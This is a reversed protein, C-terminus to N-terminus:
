AAFVDSISRDSASLLTLLLTLAHLADHAPFAEGLGQIATEVCEASAAVGTENVIQLTEGDGDIWVGGHARHELVQRSLLEGSGTEVPSPLFVMQCGTDAVLQHLLRAAPQSRCDVVFRLPRLAHFFPSLRTLYQDDITVHKLAGFRRSARAIPSKPGASIRELGAGMELRRGDGSWFRIGVTTIRSAANGVYLGGAANAEQMAFTIQPACVAGVDLVDRGAWRLGECAAAVLESAPGRGDYGLVVAAACDFEALCGAFAAAWSRVKRPTIQTHLVGAIADLRTVVSKSVRRDVEALKRVQRSSLTGVEARHACDRCKPYFSALRGLHVARSITYTEGPCQYTGDDPVAFRM